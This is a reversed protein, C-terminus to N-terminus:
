LDSNVLGKLASNGNSSASPLSGGNQYARGRENVVKALEDYAAKVDDGDDLLMEASIRANTYQERGLFLQEYSVKSIKM